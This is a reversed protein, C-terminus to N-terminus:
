RWFLAFVEVFALPLRAGNVEPQLTYGYYACGVGVLIMLLPFIISRRDISASLIGILGFGCLLTAGVTLYAPLAEM